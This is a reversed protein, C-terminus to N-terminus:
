IFYYWIRCKRDIVLKIYERNKNSSSISADNFIAFMFSSLKYVFIHAM